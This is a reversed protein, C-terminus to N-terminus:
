TLRQQTSAKIALLSAGVVRQDIGIGPERLIHAVHILLDVVHLAVDVFLANTDERAPNRIAGCRHQWSTPPETNPHRWCFPQEREL